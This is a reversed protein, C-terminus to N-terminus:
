RRLDIEVGAEGSFEVLIDEDRVIYQCALRYPPPMDEVETKALLDKSLKGNVSLTLKEKDTLHIAKPANPGLHTVKILCSGCEGDQCQFPIEINNAKAVALLTGNDGAVAYVTINKALTPGSFTVNAM